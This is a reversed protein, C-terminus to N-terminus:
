PGFWSNKRTTTVTLPSNADLLASRLFHLNVLMRQLREVEHSAREPLLAAQLAAIAFAVAAKASDLRTASPHFFLAAVADCTAGTARWAQSDKALQRASIPVPSARRLDLICNGVELVLFFWESSRTAPEEADSLTNQIQSMLDRVRSEFRSRLMPISGGCVFAVQRRLDDLLHNRIWRTSSPLILAHAVSAAFMSMCLSIADNLYAAPDYHVLNDPGALFCFYICYGIGYGALQPRTTMWCGFVLAPTLVVCLMPFGDVRPYGWYYVLFGTVSALVTGVAMQYAIRSPKAASAVLACVAGGNLVLITGSPWATQIWFWSLILTLAMARLGAVAAAVPPTKPEYRVALPEAARTGNALSAHTQAYAHFEDIFRYLLEVATDFDLLAANGREIVIARMSAIRPRLTRRYSDLEDCLQALTRTVDTSVSCNQRAATLLLTVEHTYDGIAEVISCQGSTRLRAIL